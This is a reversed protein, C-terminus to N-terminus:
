FGFGLGEGRLVIDDVRWRFGAGKDWLGSGLSQVRYKTGWV